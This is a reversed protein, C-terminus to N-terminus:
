SWGFYVAVSVRGWDFLFSDMVQTVEWCYVNVSCYIFKMIIEFSTIQLDSDLVYKYVPKIFHFFRVSQIFLDGHPNTVFLGSRHTIEPRLRPTFPIKTWRFHALIWFSRLYWAADKKYKNFMNSPPCWRRHHVHQLPCFYKKLILKLIIINFLCLIRACSCNPNLGLEVVFSAMYLNILSVKFASFLLSITPPIKKSRSFAKSQKFWSM